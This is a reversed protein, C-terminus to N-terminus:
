SCRRRRVVSAVMGVTLFVATAPEPVVTFNDLSVDRAGSMPSSGILVKNFDNSSYDLERLKTWTGGALPRIHMSVVSGVRKLMLQGSDYGIRTDEYDNLNVSTRYYSRAYWGNADKNLYIGAFYNDIFALMYSQYVAGTDCSNLAADLTMEFDGSLTLGAKTTWQVAAATAARIEGNTAAAGSATWQDGVAPSTPYNFDDSVIPAASVSVALMLCLGLSVLHYKGNM